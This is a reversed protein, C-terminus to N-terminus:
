WTTWTWVLMYGCLMLQDPEGPGPVPISFDGPLESRNRFVEIGAIATLPVYSPITDYNSALGTKRRRERIAAREEDHTRVLIGASDVQAITRHRDVFTRLCRHNGGAVIFRDDRCRLGPGGRIPTFAQVVVGPVRAFYDCADMRTLVIENGSTFYGKGQRLHRRYWESGSTLNTLLGGSSATTRVTDLLRPIPVMTLQQSVSRGAETLIQAEAPMFGIRRVLIQYAGPAVRGLKFRGNKDSTTRARAASDGSAILVVSAGEIGVGTTASAVTGEVTQAFAPTGCFGFAAVLAVATRPCAPM